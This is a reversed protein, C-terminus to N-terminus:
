RTSSWPFNLSSVKKLSASLPAASKKLSDSLPATSKSAAKSAKIKALQKKVDTLDDSLESNQAQLKAQKKWLQWIVLGGVLFLSGPVLSSPLLPASAMKTSTLKLLHNKLM